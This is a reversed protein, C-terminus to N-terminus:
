KYAIYSYVYIYLAVGLRMMYTLHEVPDQVSVYRLAKRGRM